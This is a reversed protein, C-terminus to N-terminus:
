AVYFVSVKDTTNGIIYVKNVNDIVIDVSDSKSLEHGKSTTVDANGVRITGTNAALARLTVTKCPTSAEILRTASAAATVDSLPTIASPIQVDADPYDSPWSQEKVRLAGSDLTAPLGGNLLAEIGDVYGAILALTTQTAFGTIPSAEKVRLSVGDLTAPLGGNLLTEINDVYGAILALTTQTAFGTIPNQERVKLADTELASPLGAALKTLITPLNAFDTSWDRATLGTGLISRLDIYLPRTTSRSRVYFEDNTPDYALAPNEVSIPVTNAITPTATANKIAPNEVSTPVTNAITPTATANKIAPNEISTPVTNAITPTATANKIAPNEISAPLTGVVTPTILETGKIRKHDVGGIILEPVSIDYVQKKTYDPLGSVV